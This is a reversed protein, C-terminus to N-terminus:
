TEHGENPELQYDERRPHWIDIIQCATLSRGSHPVNGPIVLVDGAQMAIKQGDLTLEFQGQMLNIIQEHPHMHEPVDCGADITWHVVTMTEAHVLKGRYGAFPSFDPLSHLPLPQYNAM